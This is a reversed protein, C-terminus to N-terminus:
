GALLLVFLFFIVKWVSMVTAKPTEGKGVSSCLCCKPKWPMTDGHKPKLGWLLQLAHMYDTKTRRAAPLLDGDAKNVVVLDALEVVGKKIGQLEDGGAPNVLLLM